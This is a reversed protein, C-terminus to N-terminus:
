SSVFHGLKAVLLLGQPSTHSEWPPFTVSLDTRQPTRNEWGPVRAEGLGAMMNGQIM